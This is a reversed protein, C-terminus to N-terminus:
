RWQSLLPYFALFVIMTLAMADMYLSIMVAGHYFSWRSRLCRFTEVAGLISFLVPFIIAPTPRNAPFKTLVFSAGLSGLVLINGRLLSPVRWHFFSRNM